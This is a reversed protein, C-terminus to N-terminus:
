PKVDNLGDIWRCLLAAETEVLTPDRFGNALLSVGQLASLLHLALAGKTEAKGLADFQHELWDLLNRLPEAAQDALPGGQKGLEACLSGVPCGARALNERNDVTMRIFAKLRDHPAPELDWRARMTEFEACRQVIIAEGLAAKTKFYYYINGLSISARQAIDALAIDGFGHAYSLEAAAAILRGRKDSNDMNM